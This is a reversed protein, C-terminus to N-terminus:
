INMYSLINDNYTLNNNSKNKNNNKYNNYKKIQKPYFIYVLLSSCSLLYCLVRVQYQLGKMQENNQNEPCAFQDVVLTYVLDISQSYLIMKHDNQEM